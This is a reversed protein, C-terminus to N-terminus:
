LSSMEAFSIPWDIANMLIEFAVRHNFEIVPTESYIDCITLGLMMKEKFHADKLIALCSLVSMMRAAIFDEDTLYAKEKLAQFHRAEMISIDGRKDVAVDTIIRCIAARQKNTLKM